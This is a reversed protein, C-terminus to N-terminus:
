PATAERAALPAEAMPIPRPVGAFDASEKVLATLQEDSIPGHHVYQITGKRDLIFSVPIMKKGSFPMPLQERPISVIPYSIAHEKMFPELDARDEDSIGVVVIDDRSTARVLANIDKVEQICPGCWTAWFNLLVRKGAFASSDIVSGDLTTLRLPPSSYGSWQSMSAQLQGTRERRGYDFVAVGGACLAIGLWAVRRLRASRFLHWIGLVVGVLVLPAIVSWNMFFILVACVAAYVGAALSAWAMWKSNNRM